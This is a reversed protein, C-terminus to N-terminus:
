LARTGEIILGWRIWSGAVAVKEIELLKMMSMFRFYVHEATIGNAKLLRRITKVATAVSLRRM